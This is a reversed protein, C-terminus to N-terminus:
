QTHKFYIYHYACILLKYFVSCYEMFIHIYQHNLLTLIKNMDISTIYFQILKSTLTLRTYVTKNNIKM